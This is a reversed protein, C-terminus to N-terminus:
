AQNGLSSLTRALRDASFLTWFFLLTTAALRLWTVWAESNWSAIKPNNFNIYALWYPIIIFAFILLVLFWNFIHIGIRDKKPIKLKTLTEDNQLFIFASIFVGLVATMPSDLVGGSIIMILGVAITEMLVIFRLTFGPSDPKDPPRLVWAATICVIIAVVVWMVIPQIKEPYVIFPQNKMAFCYIISGGFPFFVVAAWWHIASAIKRYAEVSVDM